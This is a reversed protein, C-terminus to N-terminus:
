DCKRNTHKIHLIAVHLSCHTQWTHQMGALWQVVNGNSEKFVNPLFSINIVTNQFSFIHVRGWLLNSYCCTSCCRRWIFHDSHVLTRISCECNVTYIYWAPLWSNVPWRNTVLQPNDLTNNIFSLLVCVFFRHTILQPYCRPYMELKTM